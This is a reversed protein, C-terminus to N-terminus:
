GYSTSSTAVARAFTAFARTCIRRRLSLCRARRRSAGRRLLCRHRREVVALPVGDAVAVVVRVVVALLGDAVLDLLLLGDGDGGRRRQVRPGLDQELLAVADDVRQELAVGAALEARLLALGVALRRRNVITSQSRHRLVLGHERAPEVEVHRRAEVLRRAEGFRERGRIARFFEFGVAGVLGLLDRVRALALEAVGGDGAADVVVGLALPGQVGLIERLRRLVVLRQRQRVRLAAALVLDVRQRVEAEGVLLLAAEGEGALGVRLRGPGAAVVDGGAARARGLPALEPVPGRRAERARAVVVLELRLGVLLDVDGQPAAVRARRRRRGDRGRLSEALPLLGRARRRRQRAGDVGHARGDLLLGLVRDLVAIQERRRGVRQGLRPAAAAVELPPQHGRLDGQVLVVLHRLALVVLELGAVLVAGLAAVRALRLTRHGRRKKQFDDGDRETPLARALTRRAAAPQASEDAYM